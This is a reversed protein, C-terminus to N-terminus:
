LPSGDACAWVRAGPDAPPLGKSHRLITDISYELRMATDLVVHTGPTVETVPEFAAKQAAYIEWRGDSVEGPLTERVGLRSRVIAEKCRCEIVTFPAGTETALRAAAERDRLRGYSADIIVSRGASLATHARTLAEAYTHQTVEPSYIGQGFAEFHREEAPIGLLEKRLADMQILEADLRPALERAIVSKGTGMLGTMLALVPREPRGAYTYAFDFYRKATQTLREREAPSIGPEDIRFGTVKARVFAYYCRYFDLLLRVGGDGSHNVYADVFARAHEPYGNFDLDMALFAVEAAVDSCRFRENFEICDFVVVSTDLLCIHEIHLDGHCDRTRHATVRERLLDAHTELFRLTASRIFEYQHPPVTVGIFRRTQEFNEDHNRAITTPGGAGDVTGGTQARAHFDAITRAIRDMDAPSVDGSRLLNKLMREEPLRRMVVAHDVVTGPGGLVLKGDPREVIEAVEIYTDPALRRNLRLEENCYHRRKELTTFDLFGFDVAKKVKYVFDGALFVFSIHTQIVEVEDPCHPYFEPASMAALLQPHTM